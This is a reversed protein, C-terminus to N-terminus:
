TRTRGGTSAALRLAAAARLTAARRGARGKTRAHWTAQQAEVIERRRQTTESM